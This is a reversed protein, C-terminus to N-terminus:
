FFIFPIAFRAFQSANCAPNAIPHLHRTVPIVLISLTIVQLPLSNMTLDFTVSSNTLRTVVDLRIKGLWTIRTGNQYVPKAM